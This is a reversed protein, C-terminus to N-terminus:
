YGSYINAHRGRRDLAAVEDTRLKPSSRRLRTEEKLGDLAQKEWIRCRDAAAYEKVIKDWIESAARNRILDEADDTWANSDSAASLATLRYHYSMTVTRVATPIPYLRIQQKYYAFYEPDGTVLGNQSADMTEFPVADIDQKSTGDSLTLKMSDITILNPIDALDTSSYYEQAAVTSFTGTTQNFYFRSSEYFKIASLIAEQIRGEIDTAAATSTDRTEQAIRNQLTVYDYAM